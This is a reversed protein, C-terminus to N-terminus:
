SRRLQGAAISPPSGKITSRWSWAGLRLVPRYGARATHRAVLHDGVGLPDDVAGSAPERRGARLLGIERTREHISLALTNAIGIFAIIVAFILLGYILGLLQNLQKAQDAKFQANDQLKATPYGKLLPEIAKRGHEPSVGAKLKAFM